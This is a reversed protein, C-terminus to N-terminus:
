QKIKLFTKYEKSDKLWDIMELAKDITVWKAQHVKESEQEKTDLNPQLCIQDSSERLPLYFRLQLYKDSPDNNEYETILYYGFLKALHINQELDIGLEEKLERDLTDFISEKDEPHGGPLQWNQEDKSVM